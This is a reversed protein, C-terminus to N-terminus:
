IGKGNAACSPKLIYPGDEITIQDLIEREDEHDDEERAQLNISEPYFDFDKSEFYIAKMRNLNDTLQNKLCISVIGPIFNVKQHPKMAQSFEHFQPCSDAWYLDWEEGQEQEYTLKFGLKHAAKKVVDHHVHPAYM